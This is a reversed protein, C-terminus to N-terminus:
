PRGVIPCVGATRRNASRAPDAAARLAPRQIRINSPGEYEHGGIALGDRRTLWLLSRSKTSGSSTSWASLSDRFSMGDAVVGMGLGPGRVKRWPMSPTGFNRVFATLSTLTEPPTGNM